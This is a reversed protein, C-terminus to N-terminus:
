DINSPILGDRLSFSHAPEHRRGYVIIDEYKSIWFQSGDDLIRSYWTVGYYDKGIEYEPIMTRHIVMNIEPNSPSLLTQVAQLWIHWAAPDSTAGEEWGSVEHTVQFFEKDGQKQFMRFCYDQILGIGSKLTIWQTDLDGERKVLGLEYAVQKWLEWEEQQHLVSETKELFNKISTYNVGMFENLFVRMAKFAQLLTLRDTFEIDDVTKM